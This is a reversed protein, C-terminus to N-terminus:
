IDAEQKAYKLAMCAGLQEDAPVDGYAKKKADKVVQAVLASPVQAGLKVMHQERCVQEVARKHDVFRLGPNGVITSSIQTIMQTMLGDPADQTTTDKDKCESVHELNWVFLPMSEDKLAAHYFKGFAKCNCAVSTYVRKPCASIM